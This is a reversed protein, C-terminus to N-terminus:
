RQLEPMPIKNDHMTCLEMLDMLYIRKKYSKKRLCQCNKLMSDCRLTFQSVPKRPSVDLRLTDGYFLMPLSVEGDRRLLDVITVKRKVFRVKWLLLVLLLLLLILLITFRDVRNVYPLANCRVWTNSVSQLIKSLCKRKSVSGKLLSKEYSLVQKKKFSFFFSYKVHCKGDM